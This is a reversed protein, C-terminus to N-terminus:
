KFYISQGMNYDQQIQLPTLAYNYIKVEDILGNFYSSGGYSGVLFNTATSVSTSSKSSIDTTRELNGDIYGYYNSDRDFVAVYHHWLGDNVTSSVYQTFLSDIYGYPKCSGDIHLFWGTSGSRKYVFNENCNSTKFWISASFDGTGFDLSDNPPDVVSVYDDTGDFDMCKGKKCNTSDLWDTAPDMNILTGHNLNDTEDHATTGEGEDFSWYGVPAGKNYDWAIQAPTRAYDYIKVQDISGHYPYATGTTYKGMYVATSGINPTYTDSVSQVGDVYLLATGSVGGSFTLVFHHYDNDTIGSGYNRGYFGGGMSDSVGVQATDCWGLWAVQTSASTGFAVAGGYNTHDGAKLWAELTFASTGTIPSAGFQIYEEVGDFELASGIKGRTWDTSEMNTLTGTNSNESTDYAYDGTREDFKWEAIPPSCSDTSGPVCYSRDSSNSPTTGDSETGTSGLVIAKGQNYEQRIEDETLAYNFIKVEDIKGTFYRSGGNFMGIYRVVGTDDTTGLNVWSSDSIGNLFIEYNGSGDYVLNAYYWTNSSLITNGYYWQANSYDWLALKSNYLNFWRLNNSTTTSILDQLTNISNSNFWLGISWGETSFIIDSGLDVYDSSGNFDLTKGIKGSNTWDAGTITGNNGGLGSDYATTGYGEDFKWYGVPHKQAQGTGYDELIQRPTRAYNYIKVEDIQGLWSTGGSNGIRQTGGDLTNTGSNSSVEIGDFFLKQITGDYTYAVHHWENDDMAITYWIANGNSHLWRLNTGDNFYLVYYNSADVYDYYIFYDYTTGSGQDVPSIKVWTSITKASVPLTNSSVPIFDNDGDFDLASGYKGPVWDTDADMNTLTGNNENGSQDYATTGQKEEFNWYAVPGPAYEYLQKVERSSLARNYIRSEDISGDFYDSTSVGDWEQGFSIQDSDIITRFELNSGTIDHVGDVYIKTTTGEFVLILNHWIGDNITKTATIDGDGIDIVGNMNHVRIINSSDGSSNVSFIVDRGATDVDTKIWTSFSLVDELGISTDDIEVWDSTGNFDRGNGYKGAVVTTGTQTGTNGNGSADILNGSAEDMKWYGVLGDSLSKNSQGGMAVSVGSASSVGALGASYDTLIQAETRAYPYVKIEDLYGHFTQHYIPDAHDFDGAGIMSFSVDDDAVETDILQGDLYSYVTNSDAVMCLQRWKNKEYLYSTALIYDGNTNGESELRYATGNDRLAILRYGSTRQSIMVGRDEYNATYDGLSKYWFCVSGGAREVTFTSLTIYDGDGDFYLCKGAICQDETQWTAGTITGDNSNSTKDYATTGYGEDFSWYAVPAPGKEESSPSVVTPESSAYQRGYIIGEPVALWSVEETTHAGDHIATEEVALQVQSTSVDGIIAYSHDGGDETTDFAIVIPPETYSNSFSYTSFSHTVENPSLDAEFNENIETGQEIVLYAVTEDTSPTGGSADEVQITATATTFYDGRAYIDEDNNATQTEAFVAPDTFTNDFNVIEYDSAIEQTGVEILTSTGLYHTGNELILYNINSVDVVGDGDTSPETQKINFSSSSIDTILQHQTGSTGTRSNDVGVPTAFVRPNTYEYNSVSIETEGVSITGAEGIKDFVKIYSSESNASVNGYYIYITAGDAPLNNIRIWINISSNTDDEIWYKLINGNLDTFRLDALNSQLKGASVLSSLDEDDLIQVQFDTLDSSTNNTVSITQRYYWSDNFWAAETTKPARILYLISFVIVIAVIVIGVPGLPGKPRLGIYYRYDLQKLKNM